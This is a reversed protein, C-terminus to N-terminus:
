VVEMLNLRIKNGLYDISPSLSDDSTAPPKVSEDSLGKPKSSLIYKTVAITKFYQNMPQFVLYNKHVMKKLIVTALLFAQIM